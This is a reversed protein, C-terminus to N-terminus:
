NDDLKPKQFIGLVDNAVWLFENLSTLCNTVLGSGISGHRLCLAHLGYLLRRHVGVRCVRLLGSVAIGRIASSRHALYLRRTSSVTASRPITTAEPLRRICSRPLPTGWLLDRQTGVLSARVPLRLLLHRTAIPSGWLVLIARPWPVWTVLHQVECEADTSGRYRAAHRVCIM